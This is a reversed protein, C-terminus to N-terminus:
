AKLLNVRRRLRAWSVSLKMAVKDVLLTNFILRTMNKVETSCRHSSHWLHFEQAVKSQSIQFPFYTLLKCILRELKSSKFYYIVMSIVAVVICLASLQSVFILDHTQLEQELGGSVQGITEGFHSIGGSIGAGINGAVVVLQEDLEEFEEKLTTM